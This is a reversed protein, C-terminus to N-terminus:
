WLFGMFDGNKRPLDGNKKFYTLGMSIGYIKFWIMGPEFGLFGLFELFDLFIMYFDGFDWFNWFIGFIWFIM